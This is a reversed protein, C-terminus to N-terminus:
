SVFAKKILDGLRNSTYTNFDTKLSQVLGYYVPMTEKLDNLAAQTMGFAIHVNLQRREYGTMENWEAEPKEVVNGDVIAFFKTPEIKEHYYTMYGKKLEERSEKDIQESRDLNPDGLTPIRSMAFRALTENTSNAKGQQYGVDTLSHVSVETEPVVPKKAM